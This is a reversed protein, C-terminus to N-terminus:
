ACKREDTGVERFIFRANSARLLAHPEEPPSGRQTTAKRITRLYTGRQVLQIVPPATRFRRHM